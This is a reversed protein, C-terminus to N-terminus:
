AGLAPTSRGAPQDQPGREFWISRDKWDHVMMTAGAFAILTRRRSGLLGLAVSASAVAVGTAGHHLRQGAVWLRRLDPDYGLLKNGRTWPCQPATLPGGLAQHRHMGIDTHDDM